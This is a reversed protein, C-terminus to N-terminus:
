SVTEGVRLQFIAAEVYAARAQKLMHAAFGLPTAPSPSVLARLNYSFTRDSTQMCAEIPAPLKALEQALPERADDDDDLFARALTHVEAPLQEARRWDALVGEVIEDAPPTNDSM